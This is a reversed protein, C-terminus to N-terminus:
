KTPKLWEKVPLQNVKWRLIMESDTYFEGTVRSDSHELLTQASGINGIRQMFTSFTRRFDQRTIDPLKARIRIADWEKRVNHDGFLPGEQRDQCFPKLISKLSRPLPRGIFVKGTKQSTTDLTMRKLDVSAAPLGDLDNKRLGTCLSLLVRIRWAMSPCAALIARIKETTLAKVIRREVKVKRIEIGGATYRQKTCWVLFAHLNGIDKNVTWRSAKSDLRAVIFRDVVRQAISKTRLIGSAETFKDLTLRAEIKASPRLGRVAYTDLYESVATALPIDIVGPIVDSNLRQYLVSRFYDAYGKNHFGKIIRKRTFPDTWRLWWGPKKPRRFPQGVQRL